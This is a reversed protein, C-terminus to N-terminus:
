IYPLLNALKPLFVDPRPLQPNAHLTDLQYSGTGVLLSQLNCNRAFTVDIKCCDGIMLTREPQLAAANLLPQLVLPNPKGMELAEREACAEIAAVFAGTGPIHYSPYKHVADKNTVLFACDKNSCLIHCARAIKCYSFHEDWGVIVAGVNAVAAPQSLERQVFQQWKVDPQLQEPEGAGFSEIGADNLERAIAANGVVYARKTIDTTQKLYDVITQTPSIIHTENPLQFGLRQARQWIEHRTKLGNNTILYVRKGARTQLANLVDAAGEIATDDHWLTADCDSIVTDFSQLWSNVQEPQLDLLNIASAKFM